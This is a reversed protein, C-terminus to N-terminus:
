DKPIAPSKVLMKVSVKIRDCPKDQSRWSSPKRPVALSSAWPKTQACVASKPWLRRPSRLRIWLCLNVCFSYKLRRVLVFSKSPRSILKPGELTSNLRRRKQIQTIRTLRHSPRKGRVPLRKFNMPLALRIPGVNSESTLVRHPNLHISCDGQCATANAFSAQEINFSPASPANNTLM